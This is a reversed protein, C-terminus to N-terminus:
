VNIIFPVISPAVSITVPKGGLLKNIVDAYTYQKKRKYFTIYIIAQIM